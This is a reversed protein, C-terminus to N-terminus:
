FGRRRQLFRCLKEIAEFEKGFLNKIEAEIEVSSMNVSDTDRRYVFGGYHSSQVNSPDILTRFRRERVRMIKAVTELGLMEAEEDAIPRDRQVLDYLASCVWQPIRHQRGMVIKQVDTGEDNETQYGNTTQHVLFAHLGRFM